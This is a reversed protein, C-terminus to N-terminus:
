NNKASDTVYVDIGTEALITALAPPPPRDTFLADIQRVHGLHVLANRGFKTHDTALLVQRSQEIIAQSVRVERYDFDRLTGDEEIGSIGIVAFDVKFQRIFDITAEGIVGHDQHRVVGGATIVECDPNECLILAANLNNTIVRLGKHHQLAKAVEENTTGLNIFLSAHDPIHRAVLDAIRHKEEHSLAQRTPYAINEVSSQPVGAGGHYRMLLGQKCLANIDRRMTQPTVKFHDALAEITAYGDRGIWELIRQQRRNFVM